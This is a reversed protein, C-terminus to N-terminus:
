KMLVKMLETLTVSFPLASARGVKYGSLQRVDWSQNVFELDTIKEVEYVLYYNRSPETPYGKEILAEKSFVRPGVKTIRLLKNTSTENSSHLLLYKALTEGTGLRLSGRRSNARANYLKNELIWKLHADNKYFAVLVYTEDPVLSRNDGFTEPLLVNLKSANRDFYTEFVKFSMRERQSARNEFHNVVDYLFKKVQESGDNSKSPRIAFAGLGPILEHFGYKIYKGETGPYLVYAGATRRISDKYAHMKLLDARKYNGRRQEEKEQEFATEDGMIETLKEVKYKADFHIHVILEEREAAKADIGYPWISLSYDPRMSRTWSGGKPYENGGKFTKNYSFEVNLKRTGSDYIGRIPLYQGQRLQLGLGDDTQRILDEIDKPEIKFVEKIIDLVKFFLL